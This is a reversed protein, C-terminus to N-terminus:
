LRNIEDEVAFALCRQIPAVDSPGQGNREVIRLDVIEMEVIKAMRECCSHHLGSYVEIFHLPEQPMLRGDHRLAIGM